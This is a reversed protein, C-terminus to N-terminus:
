LLETFAYFKCPTLIYLIDSSLAMVNSIVHASHKLYLRKYYGLLAEVGSSESRDIIVIVLWAFERWPQIQQLWEQQEPCLRNSSNFEDHGMSTEEIGTTDALRDLLKNVNTLPM